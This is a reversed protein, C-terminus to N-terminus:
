FIKNVKEHNFPFIRPKKTADEDDSDDNNSSSPKISIITQDEKHNIFTYRCM